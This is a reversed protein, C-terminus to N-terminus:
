IFVDNHVCNLRYQFWFVHSKFASLIVKLHGLSKHASSCKSFCFLPIEPPWFCFFAFCLPPPPPHPPCLIDQGNFVVFVPSATSCWLSFARIDFTTEPFASPCSPSRKQSAGAYSVSRCEQLCGLKEWRSGGLNHQLGLNYIRCVFM